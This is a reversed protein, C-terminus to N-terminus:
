VVVVEREVQRIEETCQQCYINQLENDAECNVAAIFFVNEAAGKPADPIWQNIPKQIHQSYDQGHWSSQLSLFPFKGSPIARISPLNEIFFLSLETIIFFGPLM